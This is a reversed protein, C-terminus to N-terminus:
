GFVLQFVCVFSWWIVLFNHQIMGAAMVVVRRRVSAASRVIVLSAWMCWCASVPVCGCYCGGALGVM